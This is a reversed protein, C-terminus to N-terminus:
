SMHLWWFMKVNIVLMYKLNLDFMKLSGIIVFCVNKPHVQKILTLEMQFMLKETSYCRYLEYLCENLFSHIFNVMNKLFLDSLQRWQMFKLRKRSIQNFKIKMYYKGYNNEEGGNITKIENKIGDWLNVYNKTLM